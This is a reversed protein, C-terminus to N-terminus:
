IQTCIPILFVLSYNLHKDSVKIILTESNVTDSNTKLVEEVNDNQDRISITMDRIVTNYEIEKIEGWGVSHILKASNKSCLSLLFGDGYSMPKIVLRQVLYPFRFLKM